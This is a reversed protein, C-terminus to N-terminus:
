PLAHGIKAFLRLNQDQRKVNQQRIEFPSCRAKPTAVTAIVSCLPKMM